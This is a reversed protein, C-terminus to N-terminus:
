PTNQPDFVELRKTIDPDLNKLNPAQLTSKM